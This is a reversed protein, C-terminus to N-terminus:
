GTWNTEMALAPNNLQRTENRQEAVKTLATVPELAKRMLWWGGGVSIIAAPVSIGLAIEIIEVLGRRSGSSRSNHHEHLEDLSLVTILLISALLVAANWLTLRTRITM